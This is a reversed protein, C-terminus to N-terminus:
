LNLIEKVKKLKEDVKLNGDIKIIDLKNKFWTEQRKSYKRTEQKLREISVDLSENGKFYEFFEKYGIAQMITLDKNLNMDYVMKAEDILGEDVMIDVRKNIRDYLTKRDYDIYIVKFIYKSNEDSIKVNDIRQKELKIHESKLINSNKTIELARIVRKLNNPHITQATKSDINKLMEYVYEKSKLNALSYLYERYNTDEVEDTFNMDDVIASVYLGTGGAIIVNKGRSIIDDIKDYCM